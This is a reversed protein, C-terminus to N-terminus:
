DGPLAACRGENTMVYIELWIDTLRDLCNEIEDCDRLLLGATVPDARLRDLYEITEHLDHVLKGVFAAPNTELEASATLTNRLPINM